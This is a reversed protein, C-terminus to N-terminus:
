GQHMWQIICLPFYPVLSHSIHFLSLIRNLLIFCLFLLIVTDDKKEEKLVERDAGTAWRDIEKGRHVIIHCLKMRETSQCYNWKWNITTGPLLSSQRSSSVGPPCISSQAKVSCSYERWLVFRNNFFRAVLLRVLVVCVVSEISVLYIFDISHMGFSHSNFTLNSHYCFWKM